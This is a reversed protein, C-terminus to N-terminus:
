SIELLDVVKSEVLPVLFGGHMPWAIHNQKVVGVMAMLARCLTLQCCSGCPKWELLTVAAKLQVVAIIVTLDILTVIFTVM